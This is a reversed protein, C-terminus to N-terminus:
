TGVFPKITECVSTLNILLRRATFPPGSIGKHGIIAAGPKEGCVSGNKDTGVYYVGWRAAPKASFGDAIRLV